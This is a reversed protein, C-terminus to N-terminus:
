EKGELAADVMAKYLDEDEFVGRVMVEAFAAIIERTPERPVIVLGKAELAEEHAAIAAKAEVHYPCDVGRYNNRRGDCDCVPDQTKGESEAVARCIARAVVSIMDTM